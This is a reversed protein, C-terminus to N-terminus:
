AITTDAHTLDEATCALGSRAYEYKPYSAAAEFAAESPQWEVPCSAKDSSCVRMDFSASSFAAQKGARM